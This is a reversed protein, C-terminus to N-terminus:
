WGTVKEQRAWKLVRKLPFGYGPDWHGGAPHDRHLSVGKARNHELPIDYKISLWALIRAVKKLQRRRRYWTKINYKAFGIMEIGIHTSNVGAAHWCMRNTYAGQGVNGAKDVVFHIGLQQPHNELYKLVGEIDSVGPRDHSETSHLVIGVPQMGGHVNGKQARQVRIYPKPHKSM